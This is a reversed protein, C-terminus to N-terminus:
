KSKKTLIKTCFNGADSDFTFLNEMDESELNNGRYLDLILSLHRSTLHKKKAYMDAMCNCFGPPDKPTLSKECVPKYFDKIQEPTLTTASATFSSFLCIILLLIKLQSKMNNRGKKPLNEVCIM